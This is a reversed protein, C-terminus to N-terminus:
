NKFIFRYECCCLLVHQELAEVAISLIKCAKIYKTSRKVLYSLVVNAWGYVNM